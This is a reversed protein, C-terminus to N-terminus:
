IQKLAQELDELLDDPHELGVSIRILNEPTDSDPGESSRRQEWTSEVGGLSTAQTIIRSGGTVKLTEERGGNVLFSIMGGFGSMQKQAIEHGPHTELGPYFVKKVNSHNDLFSALKAANENHGRMRYPLTRISRSLLWCDEPSPVAGMTIQINRIREMIGDAAPAIVAGGLIDSHGGFYKTTSHLVLDAGLKLPLQNVPSPWTNDVCTIASYEHALESVAAIDTINLMPNSPTEIWILKTSDQITDEIVELDDMPIYDVDLGWPILIENLLKSNGAYVDAPMIVHDGPELAQFVATAAAVGSAFTACAEGEELQALLHELRLRNPNVARTYNMDGEQYGGERHEFVTSRHIPPVVDANPNEVDIGAHIAKTEFHM